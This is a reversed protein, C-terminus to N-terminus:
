ASAQPRNVADRPPRGAIVDLINAAARGEIERRVQVVASGLHPTFVTNPHALLRPDIGAPRDVLARDEFAFVDAAYGGLRGTELAAAVAAEDVLSGRAPNILLSGPRVFALTAANIMHRSAPTLPATLVTYDGWGLLDELTGARSPGPQGDLDAATAHPDFYRQAVGFPALRAAIARGIAGMGVFGVRAGELGLGYFTPSWGAFAGSRVWRDAAVMKRGLGIMLAVTLEATPVTLLDPVNSFWVGRATCAAIDFNDGGKLAGAIVRLRPAGALVDAGARDPMFAMWADATELAASLASPSLPEPGTPATVEAVDRLRALTEPFVPQGIVIRFRSM